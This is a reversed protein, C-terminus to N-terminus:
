PQIRKGSIQPLIKKDEPVKTAQQSQYQYGHGLLNIQQMLQEALSAMIKQQNNMPTHSSAYHHYNESGRDSIAAPSIMLNGKFPKVKSTTVMMNAKTQPSKFDGGTQTRLQILDTKSPSPELDEFHGMSSRKKHSIPKQYSQIKISEMNGDTRKRSMMNQDKMSSRIIGPINNLHQYDSFESIGEPFTIKSKLHTSQPLAILSSLPTSQM